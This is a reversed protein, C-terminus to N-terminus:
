EVAVIQSPLRVYVEHTWRNFGRVRGYETNVIMQRQVIGDVIVRKGKLYQEAPIGYRKALVRAVNPALRFTLVDSARYDETSNLYTAHRLKGTNLVTMAFRGHYGNRATDAAIIAAAPGLVRETSQAGAASSALAVAAVLIKWTM